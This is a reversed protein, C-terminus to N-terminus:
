GVVQPRAATLGVPAASNSGLSLPQQSVAGGLIASMDATQKGCKFCPGSQAEMLCNAGLGLDKCM